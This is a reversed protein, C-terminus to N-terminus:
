KLCKDTEYIHMTFLHVERDDRGVGVGVQTGRGRRSIHQTSMCSVMATHIISIAMNYGSFVM